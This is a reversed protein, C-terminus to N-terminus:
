IAQIWLDTESLYPNRPLKLFFSPNEYKAARGCNSEYKPDKMRKPWQFFAIQQHQSSALGSWLQLMSSLSEQMRSRADIGSRDLALNFGQSQEFWYLAHAKWVPRLTTVLWWALWNGPIWRSDHGNPTHNWRTFVTFAQHYLSFSLLSQRAQVGTKSKMQYIKPSNYIQQIVRISIYM